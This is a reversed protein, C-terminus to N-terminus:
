SIRTSLSDIVTAANGGRGAAMLKLATQYDQVTQPLAKVVANQVKFSGVVSTIAGDISARTATNEIGEVITNNIFPPFSYSGGGGFLGAFGGFLGGVESLVNNLSPINAISSTLNDIGPLNALSAVSSLDVTELVSSLNASTFGQLASPIKEAVMDVAFKGGQVISDMDLSTIKSSDIGALTEGIIAAGNVWKAVADGGYKAAGQVLGALDSANELGTVVGLNQLESLGLNLLDTQTNEQLNTNELFSNVDSVGNLGAWV